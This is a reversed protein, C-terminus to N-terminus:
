PASEQITQLPFRMANLAAVGPNELAASAAAPVPEGATFRCCSGGDLRCESLKVPVGVLEELMVREAACIGRDEEALDPYPCAYTTLVPLGGASSGADVACPLRREGFLGAVDRLRAEPSPGAVQDRYEHALAAGIRALLGRRVEPERVARVERWLVLALDRFNDGGSRRGKDTLSYQHAPRGRGAAREHTAREVLGAKMLRELRQRVATATVGLAEALDGIGSSGEM